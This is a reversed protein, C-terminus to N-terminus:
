INKLVEKIKDRAAMAEKKTRFCNGFNYHENDSYDNEWTQVCVSGDGYVLYYKDCSEPRWKVPEFIDPHLKAYTEPILFSFCGCSSIVNLLAMKVECEQWVIVGPLFEKLVKYKM